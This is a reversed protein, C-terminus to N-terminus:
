PLLEVVGDVHTTPGFPHCRQCASLQAPVSPHPNGSRTVVPPFLHCSNCQRADGTDDTWIPGITKNFHCWVNCSQVTADYTGGFPFRVPTQAAVPHGAQIM